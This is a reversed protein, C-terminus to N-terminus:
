FFSFFTVINHSHFSYYFYIYYFINNRYQSKFTYMQSLNFEYCSEFEFKLNLHFPFFFILFIFSFLFCRIPKIRRAHGVIVGVWGVSSIRAAWDEWWAHACGVITRPGGTLRMHGDWARFVKRQCTQGAHRHSRSASAASESDVPGWRDAREGVLRPAHSLSIHGQAMEIINEHNLTWCM